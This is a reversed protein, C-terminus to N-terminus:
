SACDCCAQSASPQQCGRLVARKIRRKAPKQRSALKRAQGIWNEKAIRKASLGAVVAAIKEPSSASLQAFTLIGANHLRTKIEPGIGKILTL